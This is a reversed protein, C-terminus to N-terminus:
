VHARGIPTTLAIAAIALGITSLVFAPNIPRAMSGHTGGDKGGNMGAVPKQSVM